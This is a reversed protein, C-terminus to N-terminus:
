TLTLISLSQITFLLKLLLAYALYFSLIHILFPLLQSDFPITPLSVPLHLFLLCYGM